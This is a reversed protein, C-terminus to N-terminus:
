ILHPQAEIPETLITVKVKETAVRHPKHYRVALANGTCPLLSSFLSSQRGNHDLNCISACPVAGPAAAASSAAPHGGCGNGRVLGHSAGWAAGVFSTTPQRWPQRQPRSRWPTRPAATTSSAVPRGPAAETSSITAAGPAAAVSLAMPRGQRWRRPHPWLVHGRGGGHVLGVWEAYGVIVDM